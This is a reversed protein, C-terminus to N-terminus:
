SASQELNITGAHLATMTVAIAASSSQLVLTMLAGAALGGLHAGLGTSPLFASPIQTRLGEMGSQLFDIGLFILGFGAIAFGLPKWRGRGMLRLFAGTAVVPLAYPGLQIKLGFFAVLWSTGTTGLSSGFVIGLAQPFSLLGASVFGIVTVTTASSSQLLGTALTGSLFAKWPAGTFRLLARHLSEGAFGKAGETLLGMGLLFLGIGGVLAPILTPM